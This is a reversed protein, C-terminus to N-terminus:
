SIALSKLSTQRPKVVRPALQYLSVSRTTHVRESAFMLLMSLARADPGQIAERDFYDRLTKQKGTGTCVDTFGGSPLTRVLVAWARDVCPQLIGEERALRRPHRAMAFGIMATATFERYSEDRHIVQHWM